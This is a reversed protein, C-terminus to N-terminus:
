EFLQFIQAVFLNDDLELAIGVILGKAPECFEAALKGAVTCLQNVKSLSNSGFPKFGEKLHADLEM